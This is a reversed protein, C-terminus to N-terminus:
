VENFFVEANKYFIKAITDESYGKKTLLIKLKELDEYTKIGRPLKKTGFFDSGLTINNDGYKDLFYEIQCSIDYIDATGKQKLFEPVLCLGIIGGCDILMQLQYDKLNRKHKTISYFATHSCIVKQALNVVEFFSKENLHATDVIINDSNLRKLIDKGFLTLNGNDLAGGALNNNFNWTLGVYTPNSDIIRNYNSEDVFSFDEIAFHLNKHSKKLQEAILLSEKLQSSTLRTSWLAM